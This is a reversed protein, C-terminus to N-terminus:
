GSTMAEPLHAAGDVVVFGAIRGSAALMVSVRPRASGDLVAVREQTVMDAGDFLPLFWDDPDNTLRGPPPLPGGQGRLVGAPVTKSANLVAIGYLRGDEGWGLQLHFRRLLDQARVLTLRSPPRGDTFLRLELTDKEPRHFLGAPRQQSADAAPM